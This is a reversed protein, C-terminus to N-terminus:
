VLPGAEALADLVGHQSNDAGAPNPGDEFAADRRSAYVSEPIETHLHIVEPQAAKVAKALQRGALLMGGYKVPVRTGTFLRSGMAQAEAYLQAGVEGPQLGLVAFLSFDCTAALGKMLTFAVREAGGLDLHTIVQMVRLRKAARAPPVTTPQNPM